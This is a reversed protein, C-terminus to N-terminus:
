WFVKNDYISSYFDLLESLSDCFYQNNLSPPKYARVFLWKEKRLNIEFPIAQIDLPLRYDSLMRVSISSGVFVLLRESNRSIDLRFPQYFNPILFKANPSSYDLKTEAIPLVDVHSSILRCLSGFKNRISNAYHLFLNHKKPKPPSCTVCKMTLLVANDLM